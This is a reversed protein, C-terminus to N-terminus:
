EIRRADCALLVEFRIVVAAPRITLSKERGPMRTWERLCLRKWERVNWVRPLVIGHARQRHSPRLLALVVGALLHPVAQFVNM